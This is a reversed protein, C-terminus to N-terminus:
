GNESFGLSSSGVHSITDRGAAACPVPDVVDPDISEVLDVEEAFVDMDDGIM